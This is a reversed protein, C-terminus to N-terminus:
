PEIGLHAVVASLQREITRVREVLPPEGAEVHNVANNIQEVHNAINDLKRVADVEVTFPGAKAAIRDLARRWVLLLIAVAVVLAAAAFVVQAAPHM